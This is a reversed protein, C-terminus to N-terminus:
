FLPLDGSMHASASIDGFWTDIYGTFEGDYHLGATTQIADLTAEAGVSFLCFDVEGSAHLTGGVSPPSAVVHIIGDIEGSLPWVSFSEKFGAGFEPSPELVIEIGGAISAGFATVNVANDPFPWGLYFHKDGPAVVLEMSGDATVLPTTRNPFALHADAAARFSKEAGNYVVAVHGYCFETSLPAPAPYELFPEHVYVMGELDILLPNTNVTLLVDLWVSSDDGSSPMGSGSAVRVDASFFWNSKTKDLQIKDFDVKGTAPDLPANVNHGIAGSFGRLYLGTSAIPLVLGFPKTNVIGRAFWSGDAVRFELSAAADKGGSKPGSTTPPDVNESSGADNSDGALEFTVDGGLYTSPDSKSDEVYHIDGVIRGIGALPVDLHFKDNKQFQDINIKGDQIPIGQFQEANALPLNDAIDLAGALRLDSSVTADPSGPFGSLGTAHLKFAGLDIEMPQSFQLVGGPTDLSGNPEIGLDQFIFAAGAKTLKEDPFDLNGTLLLKGSRIGGTAIHLLIGHQTKVPKPNDVVLTPPGYASYAGRVAIDGTTPSGPSAPTGKAKAPVFTLIGTYTGASALQSQRFAVGGKVGKLEYDGVKSEPPAIADGTVGFGDAFFHPASLSDDVTATFVLGMWAPGGTMPETADADSPGTSSLDLFAAGADQPKVAVSHVDKGNMTCYLKFVYGPNQPDTPHAPDVHLKIKEYSTPNSLDFKDLGVKVVSPYPAHENLTESLVLDASLVEFKKITGEEVTVQAKHIALRFDLPKYLVIEPDVFNNSVAADFTPLGNANISIKRAKLPLPKDDQTVLHPLPSQVFGSPISLTLTSPLGGIPLDLDVTEPKFNFGALDFNGPHDPVARGGSLHFRLQGTDHLEFITDTPDNPDKPLSTVGGNRSAQFNAFAARKGKADRYPLEAMMPGTVKVQGPATKTIKARSELTLDTGCGGTQDCLPGGSIQLNNLPAVLSIVGATALSSDDVQLSEFAVAVSWAGASRKNESRPDSGATCTVDM